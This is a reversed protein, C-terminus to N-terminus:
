IQKSHANSRKRSRQEKRLAALTQTSSSRQSLEITRFNELSDPPQRLTSFIIILFNRGGSNNSYRESRAALFHQRSSHIRVTGFTKRLRRRSVSINQGASAISIIPLRPM